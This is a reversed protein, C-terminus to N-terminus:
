ERENESERERERKREGERGGHELVGMAIRTFTDNQRWHSQMMAALAEIVVGDISAM